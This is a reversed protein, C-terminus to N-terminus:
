DIEETETLDFTNVTSAINAWLQCNYCQIHGIEGEICECKDNNSYHLQILEQVMSVLTDKTYNKDCKILDLINVTQETNYIKIKNKDCSLNLCVNPNWSSTRTKCIPCRQLVEDKATTPLSLLDDVLLNINDLKINNRCNSCYIQNKSTFKTECKSCVKVNEQKKM